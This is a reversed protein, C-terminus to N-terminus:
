AAAPTGMNSTAATKEERLPVGLFGAIFGVGYCAHTAPIAASVRAWRDLRPDRGARACASLYALLGIAWVRRGRPPLLGGGVAALVLVSPAFYSLRRSTGGLVRAFRGRHRGFSWVQDFHPVWLPRRSHYVVAGPAYRIRGGRSLLRQCVVTDEGPYFPSDLSVALAEERRIVLNVSPADDVDRAAVQAYRWAHPGAVLPSAFVRGGLQALEDDDPPTLTPGCVAVISPDARFRALVEAAWTPGPYADDDILAVLEGRARELGLQRKRGPPVAGSPVCVVRPDLDPERHDPVFVVEVGDLELLRALCRRGLRTLRRAPVIASIRPQESPHGHLSSM